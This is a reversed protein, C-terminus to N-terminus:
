TDKRLGLLQLMYIYIYIYELYKSYYQILHNSRCVFQLNQKLGNVFSVYYKFTSM